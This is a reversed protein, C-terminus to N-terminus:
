KIYNVRIDNVGYWLLNEQDWRAPLSNVIKISEIKYGNYLTRQQSTSDSFLNYIEESMSYCLDQTKNFHKVEMVCTKLIVNNTESIIQYTIGPIFRNDAKDPLISTTYANIKTSATLKTYIFGPISM